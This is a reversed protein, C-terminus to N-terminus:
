AAMLEPTDPIADNEATAPMRLMAYRCGDADSVYADGVQSVDFGLLRLARMLCPRTLTVLQSGGNLTAIGILGEVVMSLARGREMRGVVCDSTVLRTCEWVDDSVLDSELIDSPISAIQGRYADRLMYSHQGWVAKTSM